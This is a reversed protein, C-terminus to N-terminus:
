LGQMVAAASTRRLHQRGQSIALHADFGVGARDLKEQIQDFVHQMRKVNGSHEAHLYTVVLKLVAKTQSKTLFGYAM